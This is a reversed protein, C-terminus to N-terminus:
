RRVQHAAPTPITTHWTPSVINGTGPLPITLNSTASLLELQYTTMNRAIIWQGDPSWDFQNAYGVPSDHALVRNNSGDANVASINGDFGPLFAIQKSPSWTLALGTVGFAGLDTVSGTVPDALVIDGGSAFAIAVQQGDPSPSAYTASYTAPIAASGIGNPHVRYIGGGTSTSTPSYKDFYIWNGDTSYSPFADVFGPTEDLTSVTGDLTVSLLPASNVNGIGAQDFVLSSGSPAWKVNAAPVTTIQRHGSGDLNFMVIGTGNALSGAITGTPVILIHTTDRLGDISAVVAAPGFGTTTVTNGSVTVPGSLVTFAIPTNLSNGLRDVATTRITVASDVYLVTDAPAARLAIAAGPKVTFVATDVLDFAPVSIVVRAHGARPGLTVIASIKGSADTTEPLFQSPITGVPSPAAPQLYAEYGQSDPLAISQLRVVQHVAPAGNVRSAVQIILPTVLTAQITDAQNNGSLLAIQPAVPPPPPMIASSGGCAALAALPVVSM